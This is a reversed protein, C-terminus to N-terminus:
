ETSALVSCWCITPSNTCIVPGTRTRISIHARCIPCTSKIPVWEFLCTWHFIHRCELAISSKSNLSEQCIVCITQDMSTDVAMSETICLDAYIQSLTRRDAPHEVGLFDFLVNPVRERSIPCRLSRGPLLCCRVLFMIVKELALRRELVTSRKFSGFLRKRPFLRYIQSSLAQCSGRCPLGCGYLIDILDSRLRIFDSFRKQVIWERGTPRSRVHLEYTSYPKGVRSIGIEVHM